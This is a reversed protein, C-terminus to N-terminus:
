GYFGRLDSYSVPITHLIKLSDLLQEKSINKSNIPLYIKEYATRIYQSSNTTPPGNKNFYDFINSVMMDYNFDHLGSM